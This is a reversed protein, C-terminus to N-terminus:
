SSSSEESKSVVVGDRWWGCGGAGREVDRVLCDTLGVVLGVAGTLVVMGVGVGTLGKRVVVAGVVAGRLGEVVRVGLRSTKLSSSLSSSSSSSSTAGTFVARAAGVGRPADLVRAAGAAACREAAGM